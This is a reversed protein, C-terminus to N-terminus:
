DVAHLGLGASEPDKTYQYSTHQSDPFLDNLGHNKIFDCIYQPM